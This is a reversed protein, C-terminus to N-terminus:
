LGSPSSRAGSGIWQDESAAALRPTASPHDQLSRARAHLTDLADEIGSVLIGLDPCRDRDAWLGITLQQGYSLIGISITLNRALPVLPFVELLQSGMLYLPRPPGPVNTVVLNAFPQRHILRSLAVVLPEPWYEPLTLLALALEQQHHAKAFRAAGRVAAFRDQLACKV